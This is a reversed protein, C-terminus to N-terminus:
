WVAPNMAAFHRTASWGNLRPSKSTSHQPHLGPLPIALVRALSHTNNLASRRSFSRITDKDYHTHTVKDHPTQQSQLKEKRSTDTWTPKGLYDCCHGIMTKVIIVHM